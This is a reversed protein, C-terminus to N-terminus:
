NSFILRLDRSGVNVLRRYLGEMDEETAIIIHDMWECYTSKRILGNCRGIRIMTSTTVSNEPLQCTALGPLASSQVGDTLSFILRLHRSSVQYAFRFAKGMM